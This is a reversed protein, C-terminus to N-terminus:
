YDNLHELPKDFWTMKLEDRIYGDIDSWLAGEPLEDNAEREACLQCYWDDPDKDDRWGCDDDLIRSCECCEVHVPEPIVVVPEDETEPEPEPEGLWPRYGDLESEYINPGDDNELYDNVDFNSINSYDYKFQDSHNPSVLRLYDEKYNSPLVYNSGNHAGIWTHTSYLIRMYEDAMKWSQGTLTEMIKKALTLSRHQDGDQIGEIIYNEDGDDNITKLIYGQGIYKMTSLEFVFIIGYIANAKGHRLEGHRAKHCNNFKNEENTEIGVGNNDMLKLNWESMSHELEMPHLQNGSKVCVIFEELKNNQQNDIVIREVYNANTLKEIYPM